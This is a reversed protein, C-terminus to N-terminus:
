IRKGFKTLLIGLSQIVSVSRVGTVHARWKAIVSGRVPLSVTLQAINILCIVNM